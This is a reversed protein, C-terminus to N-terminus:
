SQQDKQGLDVQSLFFVSRDNFLELVFHLEIWVREPTLAELEGSRTIEKMLELTEPAVKFGLHHFRAAFRAM